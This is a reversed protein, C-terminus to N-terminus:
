DATPRATADHRRRVRFHPVTMTSLCPEHDGRPVSMPAPSEPRTPDRHNHWAFLLPRIEDPMQPPSDKACLTSTSRLRLGGLFRPAVWGNGALPVEIEVTVERTSREILNPTVTVDARTIALPQLVQTM